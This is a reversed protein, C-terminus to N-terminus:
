KFGLHKKFKEYMYDYKRNPPACELDDWAKDFQELTITVQQPEAEWELDPDKFTCEYWHFYTKTGDYALSARLRVGTEIALKVAEERNM